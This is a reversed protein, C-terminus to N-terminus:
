RLKRYPSSTRNPFASKWQSAYTGTMTIGTSYMPDSATNTSFAYNKYNATNITPPACNVVVSTLKSAGYCFYWYYTVSLTSYNISAPLTLTKDFEKCNQLLGQGIFTLSNSFNLEQNFVTCGNLFSSEIRTINSLDLPQNFSSCNQMFTAPITTLSSPLAFQQNFSTCYNLFLTGIQTNNGLTLSSNYSSCESMFASGISSANPLSIPHDFSTCGSMFNSGVEVVSSLDISQDFSTCNSLFNSGITLNSSNIVLPSNFSSNSLFGNGIIAVNAPITIQSAIPCGSLVYSGIITVSNPFSMETISTGSMFNDPIKTINISSDFTFSILCEKLRKAGEACFYIPSGSGMGGYQGPDVLSIYTLSEFEVEGVVDYEQYSAPNTITLLPTQTSLTLYAYASPNTVTVSIGNAALETTSFARGTNNDHWLGDDIQRTLSFEYQPSAGYFNNVKLLESFVLFEYAQTADTITITCNQGQLDSFDITFTDAVKVTGYVTGGGGGGSPITAIESALGALGTNGVAGGKATVAAKANALNTQLDTIESAITM